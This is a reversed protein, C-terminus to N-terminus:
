DLPYWLRISAYKPFIFSAKYSVAKRFNNQMGFLPKDKDIKYFKTFQQTVFM